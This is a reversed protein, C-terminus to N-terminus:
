CFHQRNERGCDGRYKKRVCNGGLVGVRETGFRKEPGKFFCRLRDLSQFCTLPTVHDANKSIERYKVAFGCTEVTKEYKGTFKFHSHSNGTGGFAVTLM